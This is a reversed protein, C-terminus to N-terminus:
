SALANRSRTPPVRGHRGIPHRARLDIIRDLVLFVRIQNRGDQGLVAALDQRAAPAILDHFARLLKLAEHHDLKWGELLRNAAKGRLFTVLGRGEAAAPGAFHLGDDHIAAVGCPSLSANGDHAASPAPAGLRHGTFSGLIGWFYWGCTEWGSSMVM